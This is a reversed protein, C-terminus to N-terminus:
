HEWELELEKFESSFVGPTRAPSGSRSGERQVVEDPGLLSIHRCRRVQSVSTM